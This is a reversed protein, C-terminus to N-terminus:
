DHRLAEIPDLRAARLAPYLGSLVGVGVAAGFALFISGVHLRAPMPEGLLMGIKPAVVAILIGLGAGIMGGISTQVISETLFQLTIDNRKAGLARRIGIERTRETVTALMINMIGIGGVLLSIFAIFFLLIRYRDRTKEAQELRDLPIKIDWDKKEHDRTLQHRIVEAVPRVKSEHDVTIVIQHLHVKEAGRSGTARIFQIEGLLNHAAWLPIYVDGDYKEIEAGTTNPTRSNLVGVVVFAANKGTMRITKGLPDLGQSYFLERAVESGLVCPNPLESDGQKDDAATLFRGARLKTDLQYVNAYRATTGILRGNYLKSGEIVPRLEATFIRMPLTPLKLTEEYYKLDSAKLGYEAIFSRSSTVGEEPPKVSMIIINTAGTRRIEELADHMSGEGFAMLTIVAGTGIIIGLVSLFSRLKHLWLNRVAAAMCRRMKASALQPLSVVLAVAVAGLIALLAWAGLSWNAM